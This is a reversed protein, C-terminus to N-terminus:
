SWSPARRTCTSASRSPGRPRLGAGPGDQGGAHGLGVAGQGHGEDRCLCRLATVPSPDGSLGHLGAVHTPRWACSNWTPRRRGWTRPPSTGGASRDRRVPRPGPLAGRPRGAQQRRHHGVQRRRPQPGGRGGQLDHRPGPPARRHHGGRHSAYNWFRTGGLAPGLTTDHIAIIGFYGCSARPLPRGARPAYRPWRTSSIWSFEWIGIHHSNGCSGFSAAISRRAGHTGCELGPHTSDPIRLVPLLGEGDEPRAARGGGDPAAAPLAPVQRRGTRQHLVELIALCTDLGILDALVLPGMPHAMGLKMVTDIAEPTAVGEM